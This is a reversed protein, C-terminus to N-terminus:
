GDISEPRYVAEGPVLTLSRTLRHIGLPKGALNVPYVGGWAKSYTQEDGTKFSDYVQAFVPWGARAFAAFDISSKYAGYSTVAAPVMSLQLRRMHEQVLGLAWEYHGGEDSKYEAEVDYIVFDLPWHASLSDVDYPPPGYCYVWGGVHLGLGRWVCLCHRVEAAGGTDAGTLKAAVWTTAPDLKGALAVPDLACSVVMAGIGDFVAPFTVAPSPPPLTAPVTM